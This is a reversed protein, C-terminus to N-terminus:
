HASTNGARGTGRQAARGGADAFRAFGGRQNGGCSGDGDGGFNGGISWPGGDGGGDGGGGRGHGDDDFNGVGGRQSQSKRCDGSPSRSSGRPSRGSGRPNWGGDRRKRSGQSGGRIDEGGSFSRGGGFTGGCSSGGGCGGGDDRSGRSGAGARNTNRAHEDWAAQSAGGGAYSSTQLEFLGAGKSLLYCESRLVDLFRDFDSVALCLQNAVDLLEARRFAASGQREALKGLAAVFVKVQRHLAVGSRGGAFQMEGQDDTCAQLLSEHLMDVVDKADRETVEERLEARARAQSLRVLSELQRTTIPMSRGREAEERM